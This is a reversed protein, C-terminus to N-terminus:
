RADGENFMSLMKQALVQRDKDLSRYQKVLKAEAESLGDQYLETWHCDLAAALKRAWEDGLARQSKELKSIQAKSTPPRCRDALQQQSLGRDARLEKIRNEMRQIYGYQIRHIAGM